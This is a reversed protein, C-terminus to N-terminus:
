HGHPHVSCFHPPGDLCHVSLHDYRLGQPSQVRVTEPNTRWSIEFGNQGYGQYECRHPFGHNPSSHRDKGDLPWSRFPILVDTLRETRKGGQAGFGGKGFCRRFTVKKNGPQPHPPTTTLCHFCLVQKNSQGKQLDVYVHAKPDYLPCPFDNGGTGDRCDYRRSLVSPPQRKFFDLLRQWVRTHPRRM